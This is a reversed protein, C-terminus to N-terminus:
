IELANDKALRGAGPIVEVGHARALSQLGAYIKEVVDDKAKTVESWDVDAGNFHLGFQSARKFSEMLAAAHLLSKTPVCGRHLCTGGLKDREVIVTKLGLESARFAAAYGGTGGGLGPPDSEDRM